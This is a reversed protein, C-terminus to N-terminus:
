LFSYSRIAPIAKVMKPIKAWICLHNIFYFNIVDTGQEFMQIIKTDFYSDLIFLILFARSSAYSGIQLSHSTRKGFMSSSFSCM